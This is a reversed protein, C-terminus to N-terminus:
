GFAVRVKRRRMAAGILGFGGIFMAWTAPEPVANELSLTTQMNNSEIQYTYLSFASFTLKQSAFASQGLPLHSMDADPLATATPDFQVLYLFISPSDGFNFPTPNMGSAAGLSLYIQDLTPVQPSLPVNNSIYLNGDSGYDYTKGGVTLQFSANELKYNGCCFAASGSLLESDTDLRVQLRIDDGLQPDSSSYPGQFGSFSAGASTITGVSNLLIVAADATGAVMAAVSAAIMLGIKM